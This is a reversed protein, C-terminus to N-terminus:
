RTMVIAISEFTISHIFIYTRSLVLDFVTFSIEAREVSLSKAALFVLNEKSMSLTFFTM